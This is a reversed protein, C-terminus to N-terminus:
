QGPKSTQSTDKIKSMEGDVDSVNQDRRSLDKLKAELEGLRCHATSLQREVAWKPPVTNVSSYMNM